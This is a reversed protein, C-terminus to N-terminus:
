VREEDPLIITYHLPAFHPIKPFAIPFHPIYDTPPSITSYV